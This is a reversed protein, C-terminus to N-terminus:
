DSSAKEEGREMTSILVDMLNEKIIRIFLTAKLALTEM